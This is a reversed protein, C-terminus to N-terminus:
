LCAKGALAIGLAVMVIVEVFIAWVALSGPPSANAVIVRRKALNAAHEDHCAPCRLREGIIPTACDVCASVKTAVSTM